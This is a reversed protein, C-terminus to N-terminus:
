RDNEADKAAQKKVWGWLFFAMVIVFAITFASLLGITSQFLKAFLEM